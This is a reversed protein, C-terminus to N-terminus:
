FPYKFTIKPVQPLALLSPVPCQSPRPLRPQPKHLFPASETHSSLCKTSKPYIVRLLNSKWTFIQPGSSTREKRGGRTISSSLDPASSERLSLFATWTPARGSPCHTQLFVFAWTHFNCPAAPDDRSTKTQSMFGWLIEPFIIIEGEGASLM